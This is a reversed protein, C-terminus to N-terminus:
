KSFKKIYKDEEEYEYTHIIKRLIHGKIFPASVYIIM